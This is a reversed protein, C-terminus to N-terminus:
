SSTHDSYHNTDTGRKICASRCAALASTAGDRWAWAVQVFSDARALLEDMPQFTVELGDEVQVLDDPLPRFAGTEYDHMHPMCIGLNYASLRKLMEQVEPLEIADQAIQLPEPLGTASGRTVNAVSM